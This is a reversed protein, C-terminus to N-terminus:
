SCKLLHLNDVKARASNNALQKNISDRSLRIIHEHKRLWKGGSQMRWRM